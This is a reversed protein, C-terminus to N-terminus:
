ITPTRLQDPKEVNLDPISKTHMNCLIRAKYSLSYNHRRQTKVIPPLTLRATKQCPGPKRQKNFTWREQSPGDQPAVIVPKVPKPRKIRKTNCENQFHLPLSVRATSAAKQGSTTRHASIFLLPISIQQKICYSTLPETNMPLLLMLYQPIPLINSPDIGSSSVTLRVRRPSCFSVAVAM